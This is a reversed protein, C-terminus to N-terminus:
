SKSAQHAKRLHNAILFSQNMEFVDWFEYFETPNREKFSDFREMQELALETARAIRETQDM